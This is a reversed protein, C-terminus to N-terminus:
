KGGHYWNYKTKNFIKKFTSQTKNLYFAWSKFTTLDNLKELEKKELFEALLNALEKFLSVDVQKKPMLAFTALYSKTGADNIAQTAGLTIKNLLAIEHTRSLTFTLVYYEDTTLDQKYLAELKFKIGADLSLDLCYKSLTKAQTSNEFTELIIFSDLTAPDDHKPNHMVHILIQEATFSHNPNIDSVHRTISM